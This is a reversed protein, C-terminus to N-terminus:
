VPCSHINIFRGRFCRNFRRHKNEEFTKDEFQEISQFFFHRCSVFFGGILDDSRTDLTCYFYTVIISFQLSVLQALFFIYIRSNRIDRWSTWRNSRSENLQGWFIYYRGHYLPFIFVGSSLDPREAAIGTFAEIANYICIYLMNRYSKAHDLVKRDPVMLRHIVWRM